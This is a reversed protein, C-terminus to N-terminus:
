GRPRSRRADDLLEREHALPELPLAAGHREPDLHHAAHAIEARELVADLDAAARAPHSRHDVERVHVGRAVAGEELRVPKALRECSASATSSGSAGNWM